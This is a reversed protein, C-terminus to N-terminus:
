STPRRWKWRHMDAASEIYPRHREHDGEADRWALRCWVQNLPFKEWGPVEVVELEVTERPSLSVEDGGAVTSVVDGDQTSLWWRVHNAVGEGYNAIEARCVYMRDHGTKGSRVSLALDAGHTDAQGDSPKGEREASDQQGDDPNGERELLQDLKEEIRRLREEYGHM